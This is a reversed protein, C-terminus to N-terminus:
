TTESDDLIYVGHRPLEGRSTALSFAADGTFYQAPRTTLEWGYAQEKVGTIRAFLRDGSTTEDGSDAVAVHDKGKGAVTGKPPAAALQAALLGTQDALEGLREQLGAVREDQRRTTLLLAATLAIVAVALLALLLHSFRPVRRRGPAAASKDGRKASM